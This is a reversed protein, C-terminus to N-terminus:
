AVPRAKCRAKEARLCATPLKAEVRRGAGKGHPWGGRGLASFVLPPTLGHQCFPSPCCGWV